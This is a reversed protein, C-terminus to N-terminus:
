SLFLGQETNSQCFFYAHTVARLSYNMLEVNKITCNRTTLVTLSSLCMIHDCACQFSDVVREATELHVHRCIHFIRCTFDSSSVGSFPPEELPKEKQQAGLM